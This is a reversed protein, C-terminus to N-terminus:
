FRRRLWGNIRPFYSPRCRPRGPDACAGDMAEAISLHPLAETLGEADITWVDNVKPSGQGLASPPDTMRSISLSTVHEPGASWGGCERALCRVPHRGCRTLRGACAKRGGSSSSLTLRVCGALLALHGVLRQEDSLVVDHSPPLALGEVDEVLGELVVTLELLGSLDLADVGPEKRRVSAVEGTENQQASVSLLEVLNLASKSSSWVLAPIM